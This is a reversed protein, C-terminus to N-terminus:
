ELLEIIGALEREDAKGDPDDSGATFSLVWEAVDLATAGTANRIDRDAGHDLLYRVLESGNTM